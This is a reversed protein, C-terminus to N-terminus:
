SLIIFLLKEPTIKNRINWIGRFMRNLKSNLDNTGTGDDLKRTTKGLYQFRCSIVAKM